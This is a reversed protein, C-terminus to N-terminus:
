VVHHYIIFFIRILCRDCLSNYFYLFCSYRHVSLAQLCLAIFSQQFYDFLLLFVCPLFRCVLLLREFSLLDGEYAAQLCLIGTSPLFFLSSKGLSSIVPLPSSSSTTSSTKICLILRDFIRDCFGLDVHSNWRNCFLLLCVHNCHLLLLYKM